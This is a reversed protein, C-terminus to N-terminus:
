PRNEGAAIPHWVARGSSNGSVAYLPGVMAILVIFSQSLGICVWEYMSAIQKCPHPQVALSLARRVSLRSIWNRCGAM